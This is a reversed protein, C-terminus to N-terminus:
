LSNRFKLPSVKYKKKYSKSFTHIDNFGTLSAIETILMDNNKLLNKAKMLRINNLYQYPTKGFVSKFSEFLHFKSLTAVSALKTYPIDKQLNDHLYERAILLRKFTELKTTEKKASICKAMRYASMQNKHLNLLLEISIEEANLSNYDEHKCSFFVKQLFKGSPYHKAKLAKEIFFNNENTEVFPDDLLQEKKLFNFTEFQSVLLPSLTFGIADIERLQENFYEWGKSSPNVIIFSDDKINHAKNNLFMKGAGTNFYVITLNNDKYQYSELNANFKLLYNESDNFIPPQRLTKNSFHEYYSPAVINM